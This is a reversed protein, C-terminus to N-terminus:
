KEALVIEIHTSKMRRGRFRSRTKPRIFKEGKNAVAKMVYIRELNLNLQRANEKANKLVELIKKSAKSNINELLKEAKEVKKNKIIKCIEVSKKLSIDLNYARATATKDM